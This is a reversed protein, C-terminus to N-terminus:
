RENYFDQSPKSHNEQHKHKMYIMPWEVNQVLQVTFNLSRIIDYFHKSMDRSVREAYCSAVAEVSGTSRDYKDSLWLSCELVLVEIEQYLKEGKVYTIEELFSSLEKRGVM